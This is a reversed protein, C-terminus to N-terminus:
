YSHQKKAVSKNETEFHMENLNGAGIGFGFPLVANTGASGTIGTKSRDSSCIGTIHLSNELHANM